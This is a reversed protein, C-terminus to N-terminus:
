QSEGIPQELRATIAPELLAAVLIGLAYAVLDRANFGSGLVLQGAVTRRWGDVLPGHYLQGFEVAWCIALATLGRIWRAARPCGAAVLWAIMMAWLGDGLMDRVSPSLVTGRSHVVLGLAITSLALIVFPLRTRLWSPM